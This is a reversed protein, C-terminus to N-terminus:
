YVAIGAMFTQGASWATTDPATKAATYDARLTLALRTTLAIELMAGGGLSLGDRTGFSDDVFQKGVHGFVGLHLRSISLPLFQTEFALDHHYFSAANTDSGGAFSWTGLLGLMPHPFFGLQLGFGFGDADLCGCSSHFMGMNMKFTFGRRDLPRREMRMLGWGEDDMVVAKETTAVDAATIQALPVDRTQGSADTLHVPQWPYMAVYGDFRAGETAVMGVSALVALVVLIAIMEDNGGGGGGKGVKGTPASRPTGATMPAARGPSVAGHPGPVLAGRPGPGPARAYGPHYRGGPLPPGPAIMVGVGVHAEPESDVYADPPPGGYGPAPAPPPPQTTDIADGRREGINQVVAVRQGRQEPPLQALRALEAQPIVYENSLCGGCAYSLFAAFALLAVGPSRVIPHAM